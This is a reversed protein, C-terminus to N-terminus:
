LDDKEIPIIRVNAKGHLIFGLQRAAQRSLDIFSEEHERCRDNITVIVSRNNALNVVKVRTGFPLTPHAATLKRPNYVAGSSTRRGNFRKKYYRAIGLTGTQEEEQPSTMIQRAETTRQTAPTSDEARLPLYCGALGASIFILFVLKEKYKTLRM